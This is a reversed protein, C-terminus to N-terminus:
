FCLFLTIPLGRLLTGDQAPLDYPLYSDGLPGAQWNFASVVVDATDNPLDTGSSLYANNNGSIGPYTGGGYPDAVDILTGDFATDHVAVKWLYTQNYRTILLMGGRMTCNQMTLSCSPSSDITQFYMLSNELLCNQLNLQLVGTVNGDPVGGLLGNWFECNYATVNPSSADFFTPQNDVAWFRTFTATVTPNDAGSADTIGTGSGAQEQVANCPLFYCPSAATGDFTLTYGASFSLGTGQWAVVTGPQFILYAAIQSQSFIYDLKPYCYGLALDDEGPPQPNLSLPTNISQNSYDVPPPTPAYEQPFTSTNLYYSGGGAPQYPSDWLDNDVQQSSGFTAPTNWFGNWYGSVAGNGLSSLGSFMSLTASFNGPGSADDGAGVLEAFSDITCKSLSFTANPGGGSLADNGPHNPDPSVILCNTLAAGPGGYGTYDGNNWLDIGTECNVIQANTIAVNAGSGACIAEQAYSIRVDHLLIHDDIRLAPNAYGGPQIVGGNGAWADGVDEGVSTDDAATFICPKYPGTQCSFVPDSSVEIFAPTNNPYKVIASQLTLNWCYFPDSVFYTVGNQLVVPGTAYGNVIVYDLVFGQSPPTQSALKMENKDVRANRAAPLLRTKSAAYLPLGNTPPSALSFAPLRLLHKAIRSLPVSEVLITRGNVTIWQKSVPASASNTGLWFAKGRIMKMAGFDLSEDPLNGAQASAANTKILPPVASTFETLVQLVSSTSSLGFVEPPAALQKTLIVDQELGAKTYRYRVSVSAGNFADAYVVQNRGVIQGQCDKIQAILVSKGSATDYYSLGLISSQLEQGDPMLVSVAGASNLNNAFIVKHQTTQGIAGGPYGGIQERAPLWHGTTSDQYNLGTALEM